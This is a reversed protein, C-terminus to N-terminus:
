NVPHLRTEENAIERRHNELRSTFHERAELLSCQRNSLGKKIMRNMSEAASTTIVGCPFHTGMFIRAFHKLMPIVDSEMYKNLRDSPLKVIQELAGRATWGEPGWELGDLAPCEFHLSMLIISELCVSSPM